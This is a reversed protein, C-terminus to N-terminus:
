SHLAGLTQLEKGTTKDPGCAKGVKIYNKFCYSLLEKNVPFSELTPTIRHIHNVPQTSLDLASSNDSNVLTSCINVFHSNFENAKSLNNTLLSNSPSKVPGITSRKNNSGASTEGTQKQAKICKGLRPLIMLTMLSVAFRGHYLHLSLNCHMETWEKYDLILRTKPEQSFRQLNM